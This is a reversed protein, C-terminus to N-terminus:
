SWSQASYCARSLFFHISTSASELKNMVIYSVSCIPNILVLTSYAIWISIQNWFNKVINFHVFIANGMLSAWLTRAIESRPAYIKEVTRIFPPSSIFTQVSYFSRFVIYVLSNCVLFQFLPQFRLSMLPLSNLFNRNFHFTSFRLRLLLQAPGSFAALHDAAM